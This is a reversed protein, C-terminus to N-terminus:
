VEVYQGNKTGCYSSRTDLKDPKMDYNTTFRECVEHKKQFQFLQFEFGWQSRKHFFPLQKHAVAEERVGTTKM